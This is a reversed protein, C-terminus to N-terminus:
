ARIDIEWRFSIVLQLDKKKYVYFSIDGLDLIDPILYKLPMLKIYLRLYVPIHNIPLYSSM